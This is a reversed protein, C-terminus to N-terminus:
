RGRIQIQEQIYATDADCRKWWERDYVPDPKSDDIFGTHEKCKGCLGTLEDNEQMLEGCCESIAM